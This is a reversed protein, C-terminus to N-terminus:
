ELLFNQWFKLNTCYFAKSGNNLTYVTPNIDSSAPYSSKAKAHLANVINQRM